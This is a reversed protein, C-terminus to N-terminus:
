KVVKHSTNRVSFLHIVKAASLDAPLTNVKEKNSVAEIVHSWNMPRLLNLASFLADAKNSEPNGCRFGTIFESVFYPSEGVKYVLLYFPNDKRDERTIIFLEGKVEEGHTIVKATVNLKRLETLDCIAIADASSEKGKSDETIRAFSKFYEKAEQLECNMSTTVTDGDSYTVLYCPRTEATYPTENKM